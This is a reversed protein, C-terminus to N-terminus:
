ENEIEELRELIEEDDPNLINAKKLNQIASTKNGMKLYVEGLNVYGKSSDPFAKVYETQIRLATDYNEKDFFRKGLITLINEYTHIQYGYKTRLSSAYQKLSDIIINEPIRWDSFLRMLGNYITNHTISNHKEGPRQEFNWDLNKIPNDAFTKALIEIGPLFDPEDGVTLYVFRNLSHYEEVFKSAEDCIFRMRNNLWPSSAIYANMAQHNKIFTYITFIAGWSHGALLKYPATRYQKDITPVLEGTIFELFQDASEIVPLFDRRRNTNPIAVFILDPILGSSSLFQVIGSVHHFSSEGDLVYLVPYREKSNKYDAPTYIYVARQEKLLKSEILIKKGIIIDDNNEGTSAYTLSMLLIFLSMSALLYKNQKM